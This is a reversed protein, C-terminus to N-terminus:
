VRARVKFHIKYSSHFSRRKLRRGFHYLGLLTGGLFAVMAVGGLVAGESVDDSAPMNTVEDKKSIHAM